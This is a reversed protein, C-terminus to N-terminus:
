PFDVEIEIQPTFKRLVERVKKDKRAAERLVEVETLTLKIPRAPL